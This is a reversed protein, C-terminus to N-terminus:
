RHGPNCYNRYTIIIIEKPHFPLLFIFFLQYGKSTSVECAPAVLSPVLAGPAILLVVAGVM